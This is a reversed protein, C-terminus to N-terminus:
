FFYQFGNSKATQAIQERLFRTLETEKKYQAIEQPAILRGLSIELNQGVRRCAEGLMLGYRMTQSIHSAIQFLISNQGSFFVPLVHPQSRMVLRATFNPWPLDYANRALIRPTTAIGASPFIGVCGGQALNQRALRRSQASIKRAKATSSFDIPLLFNTFIPIKCLRINTLIKCDPTIQSTLYALALGDVIGFPHNAVLLIPVSRLQPLRGHIVPHIRLALLADRWLNESDSSSSAFNSHYLHDIRRRAFVTELFYIVRAQWITDNADSSTIRVFPQTAANKKGPALDEHVIM